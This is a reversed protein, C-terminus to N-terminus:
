TANRSRENIQLIAKAVAGSAGGRLGTGLMADVIVNSEYVKPWLREWGEERDMSDFEGGGEMWRALNAAADGQVDDRRGFLIVRTLVKAEKLHRAIVFGDGGNNGRGCLVCVRVHERGAVLKWVADAAKRGANEMLEISPIGFRETTLRDVDRMEAATLAKM